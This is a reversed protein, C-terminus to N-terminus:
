PMPRWDHILIPVFEPAFMNELTILVPKVKIVQSPNEGRIRAIVIKMGLEGMEYTNEAVISDIKGLSLYYLLDYQQDCGVLLV